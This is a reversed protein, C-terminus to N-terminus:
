DLIKYAGVKSDDNVELSVIAKGKYYLTTSTLNEDVEAFLMIKKPKRQRIIQDKLLFVMLGREYILHYTKTQSALQMEALHLGSNKKSKPILIGKLGVYKKQPLTFATGVSNRHFAETIEM